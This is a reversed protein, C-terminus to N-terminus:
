PLVVKLPRTMHIYALRQFYASSARVPPSIMGIQSFSPM